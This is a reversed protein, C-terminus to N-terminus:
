TDAHKSIREAVQKWREYDEPTDVEILRERTQEDLFYPWTRSNILESNLRHLESARFCCVYHYHAWAPPLDQRRFADNPIYQTLTGTSEDHRWCNYPHTKSKIFSCLSRCSSNEIIDRCADFDRQEKYLVPLYFLWLVANDPIQMDCIVCAFVDKISVSPGALHDPRSHVKYSRQQAYEKIVPDDTSVIVSSLWPLADLFDATVGFFLRNKFKFGQSGMRAPILAIHM